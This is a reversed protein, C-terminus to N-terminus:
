NMVLTLKVVRKYDECFGLLMSLPVYFNYYGDRTILRKMTQEFVPHPFGANEMYYAFDDSYSAYDKMLSTM